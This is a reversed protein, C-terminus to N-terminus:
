ALLSMPLGAVPVLRENVPDPALSFQEMTTMGLLPRSGDDGFICITHFTDEGIRVPIETGDREVTRNDATMMRRKFTSRHGLRELVDRPIWTWTAGSDPLAEIEEFRQEAPDGIGITVRFVTM